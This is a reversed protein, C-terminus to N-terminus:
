AVGQRKLATADLGLEAYIEANHEGRHPARRLPPDTAGTFLCFRGPYRTTVDPHDHNVPQWFRRAELQPNALIERPANITQLVIHRKFAQAVIETNAHRRFLAAFVAPIKPDGQVGGARSLIVAGQFYLRAAGGYCWRMYAYWPSLDDYVVPFMPERLFRNFANEM